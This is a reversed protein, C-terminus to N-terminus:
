TRRSIEDGSGLDRQELTIDRDELQEIGAAQAGALQAPQFQPIHVELHPDNSDQPFTVLLADDWQAVGRGLRDLAVDIFGARLEVGTAALHQEERARALGQVPDRQPHQDFPV